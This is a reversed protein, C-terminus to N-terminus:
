VDSSVGEFFTGLKGRNKEILALAHATLISHSFHSHSHSHSFATLPFSKANETTIQFRTYTDSANLDRTMCEVAKHLRRYFPHSPVHTCESSLDCMWYWTMSPHLVTHPDVDTKNDDRKSKQLRQRNRLTRIPVGRKLSLILSALVLALNM